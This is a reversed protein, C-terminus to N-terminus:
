RPPVGDNVAPEAFRVHRDARLRTLVSGLDDRAAAGAVVLTFAGATSPGDVILLREGGLLTELEALTTSPDFVARIRPGSPASATTSLTAYRAEGRDAANRSLLASGIVGLGIAQVIVAAALWPTVASRRLKRVGARSPEPVRPTDRTLEDIRALTKALGAQPAYEVREEARLASRVAREHELDARCIACHELHRSVREADAAPLRGTAFWSLLRAAEAECGTGELDSIM